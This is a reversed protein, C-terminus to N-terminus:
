GSNFDRIRAEYLAKTKAAVTRGNFKQKKSPPVVEAITENICKTIGDYHAELDAQAIQVNSELNQLRAQLLKDFEEWKQPTMLKFDPKPPQRTSRIRWSWRIQLLGHDFKKGFRHM